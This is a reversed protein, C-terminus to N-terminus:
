VIRKTPLTLHTYSVADLFTSVTPPLNSVNSPFKISVKLSKLNDKSANTIEKKAIAETIEKNKSEYCPCISDSIEQPIRYKDIPKFDRIAKRIRSYGRSMRDACEEWYEISKNSNFGCFQKLLVTSVYGSQHWGNWCHLYVPGVEKNM